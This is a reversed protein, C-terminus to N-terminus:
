QLVVLHFRSNSYGYIKYCVIDCPLAASIKPTLFASHIYKTDLSEVYSM